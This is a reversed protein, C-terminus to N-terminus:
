SEFPTLFSSYNPKIRRPTFLQLLREGARIQGGGNSRADIILGGQPFRDSKLVRAFERVFGDPDEVDFSFLRIYGFEKGHVTRKEANFAHELSTRARVNRPTFLTERVQNIKTKKVDIAARKKRTTRSALPLTGALGTTHVLWEQTLTLTEGNRARYTLAM